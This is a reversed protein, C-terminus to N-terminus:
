SVTLGTHPVASGSFPFVIRIKRHHAQSATVSFGYQGQQRRSGAATGRRHAAYQLTSTHTKLDRYGLQGTFRRLIHQHAAM